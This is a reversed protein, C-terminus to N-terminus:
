RQQAGSQWGSARLADEATADLREGAGAADLFADITQTIQDSAPLFGTGAVRDAVVVEIAWTRGHRCAIGRWAAPEAGGSRAAFTRCIGDPVPYSATVQLSGLDGPLQVTRESSPTTEMLRAIEELPLSPATPPREFITWAVVFGAVSAALAAGIPLWARKLRASRADPWRRDAGVSVVLREPVPEDLVGAFAQKAIRRAQQFEALRRGLAPDAEVSRRVSAATGQDLEGDALAMLMEDTVKTM